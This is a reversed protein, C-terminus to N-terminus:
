VIDCQTVTKEIVKEWNSFIASQILWQVHNELHEDYSDNITLVSIYHSDCCVSQNKHNWQIIELDNRESIMNLNTRFSKTLINVLSQAKEHAVYMRLKMKLSHSHDICFYFETMWTSLLEKSSIILAAARILEFEHSLSFKQWSCAFFFSETSCQDEAAHDLSLHKKFKLSFDAWDKDIEDWAKVLLTNMIQHVITEIM